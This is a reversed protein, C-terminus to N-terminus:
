RELEGTISRIAARFARVNQDRTPLWGPLKETWARIARLRPLHGTLIARGESTEAVGGLARASNLCVPRGAADFPGQVVQVRVGAILLEGCSTLTSCDVVRVLQGIAESGATTRGLEGLVRGIAGAPEQPTWEEMQTASERKLLAALLPNVAPEGIQVLSKGCGDAGPRSSVLCTILSAVPPVTPAGGRPGSAAAFVALAERAANAISDPAGADGYVFMTPDAAANRLTDIVKAQMPMTERRAAYSDGLKGLVYVTFGRVNPDRHSGLEILRPVIDPHAPVAAVFVAATPYRRDPRQLYDAFLADIQPRTLGQVALLTLDELPLFPEPLQRLKAFAEDSVAPRAEVAGRLRGMMEAQETEVKRRYEAGVDRASPQQLASVTEADELLSAMDLRKTAKAIELATRGRGDRASADAGRALLLRASEMQGHAAAAMLATGGDAGRVNVDAGAELLKRVTAVDGRGAARILAPESACAWAVLAALVASPVIVLSSM